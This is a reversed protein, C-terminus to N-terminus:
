AGGGAPAAARSALAARLGGSRPAEAEPHMALAAADHEAPQGQLAAQLERLGIDLLRGYRHVVRQLATGVRPAPQGLADIAENACSAVTRLMESDSDITHVATGQPLRRIMSLVSEDLGWHRAVAAGIAEIDAGLVAFAAVGENMGPEDPEGPRPSPASQTLRRIQQAEDPFHYHVVLRGLNQLLAVLFVVEADYGAPRLWQAVRGAHQCRDILRELELVGAGQLPGPWERL